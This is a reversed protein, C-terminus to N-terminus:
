KQNIQIKRNISKIESFRTCRDPYVQKIRLFYNRKKDKGATYIFKYTHDSNKPMSHIDSFNYGDKSLEIECHCNVAPSNVNNELAMAVRDTITLLLRACTVLGSDPHFKPFKFQTSYNGSGTSVTTDYGMNGSAGHPCQSYIGTECGIM